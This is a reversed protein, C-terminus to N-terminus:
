NNIIKNQEQNIFGNLNCGFKLIEDHPFFITEPHEILPHQPSCNSWLPVFYFSFLLKM